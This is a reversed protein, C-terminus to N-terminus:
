RLRIWGFALVGALAILLYPLAKSELVGAVAGGAVEGAMDAVPQVAAKIDEAAHKPADKIIEAAIDITSQQGTGWDEGAKLHSRYAALWGNWEKPTCTATAHAIGRGGWAAVPGQVYRDIADATAMKVQDTVLGAAQARLTMAQMTLANKVQFVAANVAAVDPQIRDTM